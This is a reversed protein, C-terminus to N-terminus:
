YWRRMQITVLEVMATETKRKAITSQESYSSAVASPPRSNEYPLLYINNKCYKLINPIGAM